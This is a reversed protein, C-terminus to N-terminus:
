VCFLLEGTRKKVKVLKSENIEKDSDIKKEIKEIRRRLEDIIRNSSEM